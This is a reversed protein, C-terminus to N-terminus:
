ALFSPVELAPAGLICALLPGHRRWWGEFTPGDPPVRMAVPRWGCELVGARTAFEVTRTDLRLGEGLAKLACEKASWVLTTRRALDLPGGAVAFAQERPTFYDALFAESRPEVLELDCGLAVDASSVAAIAWGARHSLSLAIAEGGRAHLRPTGADDALVELEALALPDSPRGLWAATARKAAYRGLRWDARRKPFRLRGLVVRERPGLWVDGAPVDAAALLQFGVPRPAAGIAPSAASM